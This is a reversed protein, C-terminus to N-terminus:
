SFNIGSYLQVLAVVFLSVKLLLDILTSSGWKTGVLLLFLGGVILVFNVHAMILHSIM